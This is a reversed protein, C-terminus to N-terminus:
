NLRGQIETAIEESLKWLLESYAAPIQPAIEASSDLGIKHQSLRRVLQNGSTPQYLLWEAILTAGTPEADLKRINLKVGFDPARQQHYPYTQVSNTQLLGAMNLSVVRGIAGELPEAWRETNDIEVESGGMSYVLQERRLYAPMEVPGVGLSPSSADPITDVRTDLLYHNSPTTTCAGLLLIACGLILARM